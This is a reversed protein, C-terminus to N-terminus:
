AADLSFDGGSRGLMQGYEAVLHHIEKSDHLIFPCSGLCKGGKVGIQSGEHLHIVERIWRHFLANFGKDVADVRRAAPSGLSGEGVDRQVPGNGIVQCLKRGNDAALIHIEAILVALFLHIHYVLGEDLGHDLAIGVATTELIRDRGVGDRSIEVPGVCLVVAQEKLHSGFVSRRIKGVVDVAIHFGTVDAAHAAAQSEVKPFEPFLGAAEETGALAGSAYPNDRDVHRTDSVKGSVLRIEVAAQVM